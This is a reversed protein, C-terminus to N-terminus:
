HLAIFLTCVYTCGTALFHYDNYAHAIYQMTDISDYLIYAHMSLPVTGKKTPTDQKKHRDKQESAYYAVFFQM